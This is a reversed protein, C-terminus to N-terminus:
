IIFGMFNQGGPIVNVGKTFVKGIGVENLYEKYFYQISDSHFHLYNEM